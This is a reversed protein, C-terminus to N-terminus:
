PGRLCCGLLAGYVGYVAASVGVVVQQPYTGMVLLGGGLGALLYVLAFRTSGLLREVLPAILLLFLLNSALHALNDHLFMHSGARWWQHDFVRPALGGGWTLLTDQSFHFLRGHALAMAAFLAVNVAVLVWTVPTWRTVARLREELSIPSPPV